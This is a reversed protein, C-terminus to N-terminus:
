AVKKAAKRVAAWRKRSAEAIRQRGEESIIRKKKLPKEIAKAPRGRKPAETTGPDLGAFESLVAIAKDIAMKQQELTTIINKFNSLLRDSVGKSFIASLHAM